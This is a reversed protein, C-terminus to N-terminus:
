QNEERLNGCQCYESLCFLATVFDNVSEGEEQKRQNFRAREFIVNRKKVFHLEFKEVVTDYNKEEDDTLDFSSLIDDAVDGM